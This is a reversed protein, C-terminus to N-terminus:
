IIGLALIPVSRHTLEWGLVLFHRSTKIGHRTAFGDKGDFVNPPIM